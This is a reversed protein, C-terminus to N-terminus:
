RYYRQEFNHLEEAGPFNEERAKSLGIEASWRGVVYLAKCIMSVPSKLGRAQAMEYLLEYENNEYLTIFEEAYDKETM